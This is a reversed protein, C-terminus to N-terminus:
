AEASGIWSGSSSPTVRAFPKKPRPWALGNPAAAASRTKFVKTCGIKILAETQLELNQDETSFRAYGILM